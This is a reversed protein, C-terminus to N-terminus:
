RLNEVFLEVKSSARLEGIKKQLAQMVAKTNNALLYERIAGKAAEFSEAGAPLYEEVLVLQYSDTADLVGSITGPRMTRAAQAVKPDLTHLPVWGLDGGQPASDHDSVRAAVESFKLALAALAEEKSAGSQGISQREAFIEMMAKAMTDKASEPSDGKLARIVRLRAQEPTAFESRKEEYIKRMNAETLLPAAVIERVYQDFLASESQADLDDPAGIKKAFGSRVADQVVLQKGVFNELLLKKGGAKMYQAQMEDSLRTWIEDFDRNTIERGNIRAVLKDGDTQAFLPAALAALALALLTRKM